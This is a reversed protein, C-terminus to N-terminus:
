KIYMTKDIYVYNNKLLYELDSHSDPILKLM